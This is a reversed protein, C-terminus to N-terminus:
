GAVVNPLWTVLSPFLMVLLLVLILTGLLPWNRKVIKELPVGSVSQAVFLNAGFPPTLFGICLNIVMLVGFFVLDYGYSTVVPAFLPTFLVVCSTTDIFCGAIILFIMILLMGLVPNSTLDLMWAAFAEPIRELTLLRGFVNAGGLLITVPATLLSASVFAKWIKKLTLSKKVFGLIVTYIAGFVASETPTVIGAYIGGLVIVPMFLAPLGKWIVKATWTIGGGRPTGVYHHRKCIIYNTVILAVGMMIGPIVGGLFLSSVSVGSAVGYVIMPISPPIVPGITSASAVVGAAYDKDYGRKVMAPILIGGLAAVVAPGSGSVAAFMMAAVITAAGLGGTVPGVIAEAVSVLSEALGSEDMLAGLFMFFPIALMVFSDAVTIMSQGMMGLIVGPNGAFFSAIVTSSALAVGIPVTAALLVVLSALLVITVM